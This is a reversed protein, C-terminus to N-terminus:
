TTTNYTICGKYYLLSSYKGTQSYFGCCRHVGLIIRPFTSATSYHSLHHACRSLVACLRVAEVGVVQQMSLSFSFLPYITYMGSSCKYIAQKEMDMLADSKWTSIFLICSCGSLVQNLSMNHDQSESHSISVPESPATESGGVDTDSHAPGLPVVRDSGRRSM